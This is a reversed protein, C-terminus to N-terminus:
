KIVSGGTIIGTVGNNQRGEESMYIHNDENDKANLVPINGLKDKTTNIIQEWKGDTCKGYWEKTSQDKNVTIIYMDGSYLGESFSGIANQLYINKSVMYESDYDYHEQGEGDPLDNAWSGSYMHETVVNKSYSPYFAIWTGTGSRVGNEWEGFYYQDNAYVALGTGNPIGESNTDGYYYFDSTDKLDYSMVEYRELHALDRVAETNNDSWYAYMEKLQVKIDYTLGNYVNELEATTTAYFCNDSGIEESSSTESASDTSAIVSSDISSSALSASSGSEEVFSSENASDDASEQSNAYNSISEDLLKEDENKNKGSLALFFVLILLILAAIGATIAIRIKENKDM